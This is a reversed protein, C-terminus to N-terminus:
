SDISEYAVLWEGNGSFSKELCRVRIGPHFEWNEDSPMIGLIEFNGNSHERASVPRWVDVGEDLLRVFIKTVSCMVINFKLAAKPRFDAKRSQRHGVQRPIQAEISFKARSRKARKGGHILIDM